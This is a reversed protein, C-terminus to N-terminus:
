QEKAEPDLTGTPSQTENTKSENLMKSVKKMILAVLNVWAAKAEDTLELGTGQLKYDLWLSLNAKVTEIQEERYGSLLNDIFDGSSLQQMEQQSIRLMTDSMRDGKIRFESVQEM